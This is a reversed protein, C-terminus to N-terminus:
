YHRHFNCLMNKKKEEYTHTQSLVTAHSSIVINGRRPYDGDPTTLAEQKAQWDYDYLEQEWERQERVRYHEYYDRHGYDYDEGEGM